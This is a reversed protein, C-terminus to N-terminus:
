PRAGARPLFDIVQVKISGSLPWLAERWGGSKAELKAETVRVEQSGMLQWEIPEVESPSDPDCVPSRASRSCWLPVLEPQLLYERQASQRLRSVVRGESGFCIIVKGYSTGVPLSQGAFWRGEKTSISLEM